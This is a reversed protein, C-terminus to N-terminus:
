GVRFIRTGKTNPRWTVKGEESQITTNNGMYDKIFNAAERKEDDLISIESNKVKYQLIREDIEPTSVITNEEPNAYKKNLFESYAETGDPPPAFQEYDEGLELALRGAEVRTWFDRSVNGIMDIMEQDREFKHVKLNRGDELSVLYGTDLALGMLYTQLQLYYSPPIGGEWQKSSWGSITKIEIIAEVNELNIRGDRIRLNKTKIQLRDPSFFLHPYEPNVVYGVPEYLTRVKTQSEYNRLMSEDDGDWYEFIEAVTKELITGMFMPINPEVKQPILGIKQYYLEAPSKWSNVGMLTGIESAGLGRSRFQLWEDYSKDKNIQIIELGM